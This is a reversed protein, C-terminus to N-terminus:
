QNHTTKLFRPCATHDGSCFKELCSRTVFVVENPNRCKGEAPYDMTEGSEAGDYIQLLSPPVPERGYMGGADSRVELKEPRRFAYQSIRYKPDYTTGDTYETKEFQPCKVENM